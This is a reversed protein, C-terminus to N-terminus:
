GDCTSPVLLEERVLQGADNRFETISEEPLKEWGSTTIGTSSILIGQDTVRTRLPFYSECHSQPAKRGEDDYGHIDIPSIAGHNVNVVILRSSDSILANLCAQPYRSKLERVASHVAEPLAMGSGIKQTILALYCESDTTGLLQARYEDSLMEAVDNGPAIYGNHALTVGNMTFPHCNHLVHAMGTSAWRLHVIHIPSAVSTLRRTFNPDRDASTVTRDSQLVGDSDVWSSGWGHNHFSGLARFEDIEESSLLASLPAPERLLAGLLRCM